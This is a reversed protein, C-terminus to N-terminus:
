IGFYDGEIRHELYLDNFTHYLFISNLVYENFLWHMM